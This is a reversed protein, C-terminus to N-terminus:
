CERGIRGAIAGWRRLVADSLSLVRGRFRAEGMRGVRVLRFCLFFFM